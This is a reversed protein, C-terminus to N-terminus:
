QVLLFCSNSQQNYVSGTFSRSFTTEASGCLSIGPFDNNAHAQTSSTTQCSFFCVRLHIVVLAGTQIKFPTNLRLPCLHCFTTVKSGSM